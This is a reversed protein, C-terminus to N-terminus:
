DRHRQKEIAALERTRLEAARQTERAAAARQRAIIDEPDLDPITAYGAKERLLAKDRQAYAALHATLTNFPGGSTDDATDPPAPDTTKKKRVRPKSPGGEGAKKRVRPTTGEGTKRPRGRKATAVPVPETEKTTSEDPAAAPAQGIAQTWAELQGPETTRVLADLRFSDINTKRLLSPAIGHMQAQMIRDTQTDIEVVNRNPAARGSGAVEPSVEDYPRPTEVPMHDNSLGIMREFAVPDYAPSPAVPYDTEERVRQRGEGPRSRVNGGDSASGSPENTGNDWSDAGGRQNQVTRPQDESPTPPTVPLLTASARSQPAYQQVVRTASPVPASQSPVSYSPQISPTTSITNPISIRHVNNTTIASSRPVRSRNVTNNTNNNYSIPRAHLSAYETAETASVLADLGSASTALDRARHLLSKTSPAQNEFGNPSQRPDFSRPLNYYSDLNRQSTQISRSGAAQPQSTQSDFGAVSAASSPLTYNSAVSTAPLYQISSGGNRPQELPNLPLDFRAPQGAADRTTRPYHRSSNISRNVAEPLEPAHPIYANNVPLHGATGEQSPVPKPLQYGTYPNAGSM